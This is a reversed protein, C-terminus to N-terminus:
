QVEKGPSPGDIIRRQQCGKCHCMPSVQHIVGKPTITLELALRLKANELVVDMLLTTLDEEQKILRKMEPKSITILDHKM